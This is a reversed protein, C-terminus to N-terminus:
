VDPVVPKGFPAISVWRLMIAWVSRTPGAYAMSSLVTLTTTMGRNWTPPVLQASPDICAPPRVMTTRSSAGSSRSDSTSSRAAM